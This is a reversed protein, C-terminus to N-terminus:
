VRADINISPDSNIINQQQVQWSVREVIGYSRLLISGSM